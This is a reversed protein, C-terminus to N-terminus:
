DEDCSGKVGTEGLWVVRNRGKKKATYLGKDAQHILYELTCDEGSQAIGISITTKRRLGTFPFNEVKERIREAQTFADEGKSDPLLILFEEGGFRFVKDSLRVAERLIRALERLVEDGTVHGYSDNIKKFHDMDLLVISFCHGSRESRSLEKQLEEKMYRRNYLGTLPDTASETELMRYQGELNIRNLFNEMRIGSLSRFLVMSLAYYVLGQVYHQFQMQKYPAILQFSLYLMLLAFGSVLSFELAGQWIMTSLFLIVIIFGSLDMTFHLDVYTLGVFFVSLLYLYLLMMRKKVIEPFRIKTRGIVAKSIIFVIGLVILSGYIFIYSRAYEPLEGKQPFYVHQLLMLASLFVMLLSVDNMHKYNHVNQDALLKDLYEERLSQKNTRFFM